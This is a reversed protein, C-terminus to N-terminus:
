SPRVYRRMEVSTPCGASLTMTMCRVQFKGSIDATPYDFNVAENIGIPTYATSATIRYIVSQATRLLTAARTNAYATMAAEDKGEPLTTYDYAKTIMRGRSVTSLYSNPDNDTAEGIIVTGAMSDTYRVVVHNATDTYDFEEELEKEFKANEGEIYNWTPAITELARYRQLRVRGMPDTFAARFGALDLLDNVAGLKTDSTDSNEQNNKIGYQRANTVTYDSPDAIVELGAGECISKAVEVANAGAEVTYGTAFSDDLLAQLRGYMKLTCRRMAGKVTASPIAPIFTGLVDTLWEGNPLQGRIYVRIFDAGFDYSGILEAEASEKISTDDNRTVSGGKLAPIVELEEGTSRSVRVYRYRTDILHSGWESANNASAM